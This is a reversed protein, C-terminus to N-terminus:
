GHMPTTDQVRDAQELNMSSCLEGESAALAAREAQKDNKKLIFLGVSHLLQFFDCLSAYYM